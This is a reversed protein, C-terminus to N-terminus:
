YKWYTGDAVPGTLGLWDFSTTGDTWTVAGPNNTDGPQNLSLRLSASTSIPGITIDGYLSLQRSQDTLSGYMEPINSCTVTSAGTICSYRENTGDAGLSVNSLSVGGTQQIDFVLDTVNILATSDTKRGNFEFTGLQRQTGSLLPAQTQGSNRVSTITSRATVFPLYTESSTTTYARSSWGGNGQISFSGVRVTENSVGGNEKKKTEARVYIKVEDRQAVKFEDAALSLKYTRNTLASPDLRARGLLKRNEDFILMSDVSASAADLTVSISRVNFPEEYLYIKASALVPSVEGLLLFQSRISTDGYQDNSGVSSSSSSSSMSSSSSSSSSSPRSSSVSSSSSSQSNFNVFKAILRVAELRTIQKNPSIGLDMNNSRLQMMCVKYWPNDGLGPCSGWDFVELLIKAAEAYTVTQDPKYFRVTGTGYGEVIGESKLACVWKAYWSGARVDAFCSADVPDPMMDDGAAVAMKAFEARNVARGPFFKDARQIVGREMLSFLITQDSVTRVDTYPGADAATVTLATQSVVLLSLIFM